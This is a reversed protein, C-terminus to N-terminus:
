IGIDQDKTYSFGALHYALDWIPSTISACLHRTGLCVLLHYQYRQPLDGGERRQHACAQHLKGHQQEGSSQRGYLHVAQAAITSISSAGHELNGIPWRRMRVRYEGIRDTAIGVSWAVFFWYKDHPKRSETVVRRLTSHADHWPSVAFGALASPSRVLRTHDRM